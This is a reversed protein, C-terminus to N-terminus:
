REPSGFPVRVKLVKRRAARSFPESRSTTRAPISMSQPPTRASTMAGRRVGLAPEEGLGVVIGDADQEGVAGGADQEGAVGLGPAFLVHRAPRIRTRQRNDFFLFVYTDPRMKRATRAPSPVWSTSNVLIYSNSRGIGCLLVSESPSQCWPPLLGRSLQPGRQRLGWQGDTEIRLYLTPEGEGVPPVPAQLFATSSPRSLKPWLPEITSTRLLGSLLTM